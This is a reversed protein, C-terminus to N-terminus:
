RVVSSSCSSPSTSKTSKQRMKMRLQHYGGSMLYGNVNDINPRERPEGRIMKKVIETLESSYTEEMRNILSDIVSNKIKLNEFDIIESFSPVGNAYLLLNRAM